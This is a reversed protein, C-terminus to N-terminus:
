GQHRWLWQHERGLDMRENTDAFPRCQLELMGEASPLQFDEIFSFKGETLM